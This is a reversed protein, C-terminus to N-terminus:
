AFRDPIKKLKVEREFFYGEIGMGKLAHLFRRTKDADM